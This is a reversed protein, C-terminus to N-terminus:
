FDSRTPNKRWFLGITRRPNSKIPIDKIDSEEPYISVNPMLKTGVDTKVMVKLIIISPARCDGNFIQNHESM